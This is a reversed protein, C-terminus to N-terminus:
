GQNPDPYFPTPEFAGGGGGVRVHWNRDCVKTQGNEYYEYHGSGGASFLNGLASGVAKFAKGLWAFFGKSAEDKAVAQETIPQSVTFGEEALAATAAQRLGPMLGEATAMTDACYGDAIWASATAQAQQRSAGAFAIRQALLQQIGPQDNTLCYTYTMVRTRNNVPLELMDEQAAAFTGSGFLVLLAVITRAFM